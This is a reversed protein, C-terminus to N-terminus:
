LPGELVLVPSLLLPSGNHVRILATDLHLTVMPRLVTPSWRLRLKLWFICLWHMCKPSTSDHNGTEDSAVANSVDMSNLALNIGLSVGGDEGLSEEGGYVIGIKVGISDNELLIACSRVSSLPRSFPKSIVVDFSQGPWGM